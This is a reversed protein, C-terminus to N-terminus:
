KFPTKSISTIYAKDRDSLKSKLLKRWGTRNKPNKAFEIVEPDSKLKKVIQKVRFDEM